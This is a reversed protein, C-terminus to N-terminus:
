KVGLQSKVKEVKRDDEAERADREENEAFMKLDELVGKCSKELEESLEKEPLDRSFMWVREGIEKGFDVTVKFGDREKTLSKIEYSDSMICM